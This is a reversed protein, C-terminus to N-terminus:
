QNNFEDFESTRRSNFHRERGAIYEKAFQELNKQSRYDGDKCIYSTEAKFRGYKGMSGGSSRAGRECTCLCGVVPNNLERVALLGGDRLAVIARTDWCLVLGTDKCFCCRFRPGADDMEPVGYQQMFSRQLGEVESPGAGRESAGCLQGYLISIPFPRKTRIFEEPEPREASENRQQRLGFAMKRIMAPTEEREHYGGSSKWRELTGATLQKNVELADALEVRSLAEKWIVLLEVASPQKDVWAKTDPFRLAYDKWWQNFETNTM